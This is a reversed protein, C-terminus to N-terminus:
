GNSILNRQKAEPGKRPSNTTSKSGSTTTSLATRKRKKKNLRRKQAPNSWEEENSQESDGTNSVVEDEADTRKSNDENGQINEAAVEVERGCEPDSQNVDEVVKEDSQNVETVSEDQNCTKENESNNAIKNHPKRLIRCWREDHGIVQRRGEQECLRCKHLSPVSLYIHVKNWSTFNKSNKLISWQKVSNEHTTSTPASSTPPGPSGCTNLYAIAASLRSPDGAWTNLYAM